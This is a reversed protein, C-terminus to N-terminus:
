KRRTFVYVNNDWIAIPESTIKDESVVGKVTIGSITISLDPANYVYTGTYEDRGVEAGSEMYIITYDVKDKSFTLSTVANINGAETTSVIEWETGKMSKLENDDDSCAAFVLPLVLLFAILIKKM